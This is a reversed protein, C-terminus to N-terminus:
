HTMATPLGKPRGTSGSTYIVYVLNQGDVEVQPDHDPWVGPESADLDVVQLGHQDPLLSQGPGQCLVLRVGSDQLMYALRERPYDLDLPVYAGGAKLIALLGVMMEVSRQAAVAVRTELGVGLSMLRHALRNARRNLEGYSLAADGFALAVADPTRRAWAEFSRHVPQGQGAPMRNLGWAALQRQEQPQLLPVDGLAQQPHEALAQLLAQCHGAMRAITESEFLPAAYSFALRVEGDASESSNLM